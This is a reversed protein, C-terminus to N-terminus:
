QRWSIGRHFVMEIEPYWMASAPAVGTCSIANVSASALSYTCAASAAPIATSSKAGRSDNKKTARVVTSSSIALNRAARRSHARMM